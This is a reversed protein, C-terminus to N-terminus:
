ISSKIVDFILEFALLPRKPSSHTMLLILESTRVRTWTWEHM